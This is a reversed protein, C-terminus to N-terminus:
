RNAKQDAPIDSWLLEKPSGKLLFGRTLLGPMATKRVKERFFVVLFRGSFREKAAIRHKPVPLAKPRRKLPLNVRADGMQKDIRFIRRKQAELFVGFAYSRLRYLFCLLLRIEHRGFLWLKPVRGEFPRRLPKSSRNSPPAHAGLASAYPAQKPTM